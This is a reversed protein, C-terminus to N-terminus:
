IKRKFLAIGYEETTFPFPGFQKYLIYNERIYKMIETAYDKGFAKYGYETTDRQTLVIYNVEEEEIGSIVEDVVDEKILEVPLYSYYYLPNERESLFNLVVGEPFVVMSEDKLTNEGLFE